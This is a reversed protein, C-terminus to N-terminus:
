ITGLVHGCVACQRRDGIEDNEDFVIKHDCEGTRDFRERAEPLENGELERLISMEVSGNPSRNSGNPGRSMVDEIVLSQKDIFARQEDVKDFAKLLLETRERPGICLYAFDVDTSDKYTRTCLYGRLADLYARRVSHSLICQVDHILNMNHTYDPVGRKWEHQWSMREALKLNLQKDEPTV